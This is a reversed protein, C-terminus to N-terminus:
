WRRPQPPPPPPTPTALCRASRHHRNAEKKAPPQWRACGCAFDRWNGEGRASAGLLWRPRTCSGPPRRWTRRYPSGSIVSWWRGGSGNIPPAPRSSPPRRRRKRKTAMRAEERRRKRNPREKSETVVVSEREYLRAAEIATLLAGFVFEGTKLVREGAEEGEREGEEGEGSPYPTCDVRVVSSEILAAFAKEVIGPQIGRRVYLRQQQGRCHPLPVCTLGNLLYARIVGKAHEKRQMLARREERVEGLGRRCRLLEACFEELHRAERDSCAMEKGERIIKMDSLGSTTTAASDQIRQILNQM